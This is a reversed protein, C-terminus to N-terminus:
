RGHPQGVPMDHDGPHRPMVRTTENFATDVKAGLAKLEAAMASFAPDADAATPGGLSRSRSEMMGLKRYLRTWISENGKLQSM